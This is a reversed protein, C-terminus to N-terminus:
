ISGAEFYVHKTELFDNLGELGHLRGLGSQRYGGTEGEAFLRTHCNLWVTGSRIARSVRTARNLDNTFVSAALGYRTANAMHVAETEDSFKELSAIPGFLEEQVLSSDLNDIEFLTPTIFAGEGDLREGKVILNGEDGAQEIIGELRTQNEKDILSGMQSTALNGPGTNIGKYAAAMKTSFENYVSDHVIFRTAAVCIQGAMVLSGHLLEGVAKDIDADAFVVAPAKGGLELSLRKLTSSAGEMIRRGTASSGTFSIVDVDKSAVLAEGVTSGDENVSNICGIPFSACAAICEMVVAHVMPVQPAPKIVATCGAALAPALSRILLTVPANWPVIVAAVGAPERHLLSINGPASEFTRGFINRALGAYYRTESVAGIMEGIAESRLKGNEAVILDILEERRAELQDALEFLAVARLRPSAAWSGEDFVRRAHGIAENALSADGPSYKGLSEGNAPNFSERATLLGEVWEGGIFHKAVSM